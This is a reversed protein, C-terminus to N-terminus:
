EVQELLVLVVLLAVQLLEVVAQLAILSDVQTLVVAVVSAKQHHIDALM